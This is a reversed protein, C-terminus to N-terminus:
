AAAPPAAAVDTEATRVQGSVEPAPLLDRRSWVPTTRVITAPTSRHILLAHWEPLVRLRDPPCTRVREYRERGDPDRITEHRYGCLQSVPDLDEDLTFGGFVLKANTSNWITDAGSSGWRAVLQSPSQVAWVLHIGRGGSDPIWRELPVPTILAVEDLFLGLPPDLRGRPRTAAAQKASEFVHGTFAALLPATSANARESGVLFLTGHGALFADIDFEPLGRAPTVLAAVNPDTMFQVARSLTLFISDTTKRADTHLVQALSEATGDPVQGDPADQLIALAEGAGGRRPERAPNFVWRAVTAMEEGQLAAALLLARLVATAWEDWRDEGKDPDGATAAVLYGARQWAIQPDTCGRVLSWWVSSGLGGLNEPNFLWVPGDVARRGACLEYLDTKTSTVVAPGWHDLVHHGLLATKGTQPPALLGVVDRKAAYCHTDLVPGVVSRGLWTGCETVPLQEVRGAHVRGQSGDPGPETVAAALSPRTSAAIQRVASASLYRHLDWWSAWGDVGYRGRVRGRVTHGYIERALPVAVVAVGAALLFAGLWWCVGLLGAVVWREPPLPVAPNTLWCVGGGVLQAAVACLQVRARRLRQSVLEATRAWGPSAAVSRLVPWVARWWAAACGREAAALVRRARPVRVPPPPPAPSDEEAVGATDDVPHLKTASM